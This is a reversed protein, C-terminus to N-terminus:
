FPPAGTLLMYGLCGLSYLDARGDLTHPSIMGEPSLYLPTGVIHNVTSSETSADGEAPGIQKVLGFDLVKVVDPTGGRECLIVNAPKVDRHILGVSHAETLAVCVQALIHAVRGAPQPGDSDVL